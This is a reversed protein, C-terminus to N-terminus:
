YVRAKDQGQAKGLATALSYGRGTRTLSGRQKWSALTGYSIRYGLAMLGLRIEELTPYYISAVDAATLSRAIIHAPVYLSTEGHLSVTESDLRLADQEGLRRCLASANNAMWEVANSEGSWRRAVRLIEEELSFAHENCPLHIKNSSNRFEANPAARTYIARRIAPLTSQIQAWFLNLTEM